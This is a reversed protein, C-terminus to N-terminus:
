PIRKNSMDPLPAWRRALLTLWAYTAVYLGLSLWLVQPHLAFNEKGRVLFVGLDLDARSGLGLAGLAGDIAIAGGLVQVAYPALIATSHPLVHRFLVRREPVGLLYAAEIFPQARLRQFEGAVIVAASPVVITLFATATAIARYERLVVVIAVVWLVTPCSELLQALLRTLDGVRRLRRTTMAQAVLVATTLVALTLGLGKLLSLGTAFVATALLDRGFEDTGLPDALGAPQWPAETGVTAFIVAALVAIAPAGWLTLNLWRSVSHPRGEPVDMATLM